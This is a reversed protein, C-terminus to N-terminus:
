ASLRQDTSAPTPAAIFNPEIEGRMVRISRDGTFGLRVSQGPHCLMTVVIREGSATVIVTEESRRRTLVLM